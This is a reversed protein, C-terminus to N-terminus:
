IKWSFKWSSIRFSQDSVQNSVSRNSITEMVSLRSDNQKTPKSCPVPLGWHMKSIAEETVFAVHQQLMPLAQPFRQSSHGWTPVFSNWSNHGPPEPYLGFWSVTMRSSILSHSSYSFMQWFPCQVLVNPLKMHEQLSPKIKSSVLLLQMPSRISYMKSYYLFIDIIIKRIGGWIHVFASQMWLYAPHTMADVILPFIVALTWFSVHRHWSSTLSVIMSGKTIIM